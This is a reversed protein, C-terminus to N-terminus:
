YNILIALINKQLSKYYINVKFLSYFFFFFFVGTAGPRNFVMIIRNSVVRIGGRFAVKSQLGYKELHDAFKNMVNKSSKVLLFYCIMQQCCIM